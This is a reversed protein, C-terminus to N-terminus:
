LQVSLYSDNLPLFIANQRRNDFTMKRKKNGGVGDGAGDGAPFESVVLTKTHQTKKKKTAPV